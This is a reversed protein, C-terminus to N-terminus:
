RSDKDLLHRMAWVPEGEAVEEGSVDMPSLSQGDGVAVSGTAAAAELDDLFDLLVEPEMPSAVYYGQSYDCGARRLLDWQEAREVGEATVQLGLAHALATLHSLIELHKGEPEVTSLLSPEIKVEHVPYPTYVEEILIDKGKMEEVARVLSFEDDFVGIIHSRSM